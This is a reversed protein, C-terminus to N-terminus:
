GTEKVLSMYLAELPNGSQRFASVKMGLGRIADLLDAQEEERGKLKVMVTEPSLRQVEMVGSLQGIRQVATDDAPRLFRVELM